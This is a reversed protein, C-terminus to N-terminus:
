KFVINKVFEKGLRKNIEDIIGAKKFMLENRWAANKVKVYLVGRDIKEIQSVKTIYVGVVEAWLKITRFEETANEFNLQKYLADFVTHLKNPLRTYAM